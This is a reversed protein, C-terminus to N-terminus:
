VLRPRWGRFPAPPPACSPVRVFPLGALGLGAARRAPARFPLGWPGRPAYSPQRRSLRCWAAPALRLARLAEGLVLASQQAVEQTIASCPSSPTRLTSVSATSRAKANAQSRCASWRRRESLSKMVWDRRPPSSRRPDAAVRSATRRAAARCRRPCWRWCRPPVPATRSTIAWSTSPTVLSGADRELAAVLVLGLVVCSSTAIALIEPDDQDLERIAEVVHARDGRHRLLLM